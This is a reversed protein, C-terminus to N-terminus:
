PRLEETLVVAPRADEVGIGQGALIRGYVLTHLDHFGHSLDITQLGYGPVNVTVRRISPGEETTSLSWAVDARDLHLSGVAEYGDDHEVQPVRIPAGFLWLMLDFLHIGINTLLGGSQRDDGKWSADYWPGRFTSYDVKVEARQRTPAAALWERLLLVSPHLRLQFVTWVRHGTVQEIESIRDLDAAYLALPKESIVDAGGQMANIAQLTHSDNPTCLVIIEVAQTVCEHFFVGENTTFFARPAYQDLVGVSDHPDCAVVLDGGLDRIARM